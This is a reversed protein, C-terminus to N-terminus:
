CGRTAQAEKDTFRVEQIFEEHSIQLEYRIQDVLGMLRTLKKYRPDKRLVWLLKFGPHKSVERSLQDLITPAVTAHPNYFSRNTFRRELYPYL